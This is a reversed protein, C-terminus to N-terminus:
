SRKEQKGHKEAEHQQVLEVAREISDAEFRRACIRCHTQYREGGPREKM